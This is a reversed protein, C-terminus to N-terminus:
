YTPYAACGSRAWVHSLYITLRDTGYHASLRIERVVFLCWNAKASSLAGVPATTAASTSAAPVAFALAAIVAALAAM